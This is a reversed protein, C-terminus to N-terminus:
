TSSCATLSMANATATNATAKNTVWQTHSPTNNATSKKTRANVRNGEGKATGTLADSRLSFIWGFGIKAGGLRNAAPRPNKKGQCRHPQQSTSVWQGRA